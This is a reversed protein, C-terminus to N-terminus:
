GNHEALLRAREEPTLKVGEEALYRRRAAIQSRTVGKAPKRKKTVRKVSSRKKPTEESRSRPRPVV